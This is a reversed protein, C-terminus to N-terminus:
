RDHVLVLSDRLIYASGIGDPLPVSMADPPLDAIEQRGFAALIQTIMRDPLPIGLARVQHVVLASRHENLPSLTGEVEVRITDPLFGIVGGLDPLQPFSAIAVDGGVHIVGDKMTVSPAAIGPPIMQPVGFALVSEVELSGLVLRGDGEGRRFSEFRELTREALERSAVPQEMSDAGPSIQRFLPDGWRWGAFAAFGLLGVMVISGFCGRVTKLGLM